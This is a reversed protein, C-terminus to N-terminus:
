GIQLNQLVNRYAEYRYSDSLVDNYASIVVSALIKNGGAAATIKTTSGALAAQVLSTVQKQTAGAGLAAATVTGPLASTQKSRLISNFIAVGVSGGFSRMTTLCGIGIGMLQQPISYQIMIFGLGTAGGIGIGTILSLGVPIRVSDSPKLIAVLAYLTLV